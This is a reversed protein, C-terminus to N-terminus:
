AGTCTVWFDLYEIETKGFFSNEINCELGNNKIEQLTLELKELHNSWDGKTIILLDYIYARIFEFGCFEENM